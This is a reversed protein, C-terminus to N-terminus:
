FAWALKFAAGETDDGSAYAFETELRWWRLGVGASLLDSRNGTLDHCYGGRLELWPWVRWGGGFALEQASAEGAVSENEILDADLGLSWREDLYAAGLRYAPRLTFERGDDLRYTDRLLNRATFAIRYHEQLQTAVGLDVNGDFFVEGNEETDLEIVEDSFTFDQRLVLIRQGKPTIGFAVPHGFVPLEKALALGFEVIALAGIFASSTLNEKPDQLEGDVFLEPREEGESGGTAIFSMAQRYDDLVARDEPTINGSTVGVVRAGLILAGGQRKGPVTLSWGLHGDIEVPRDTLDAAVEDLRNVADLVGQASEAGPSANYADVSDTVQIDLEEDYFDLVSDLPGESQAVLSLSMRGDQGVDEDRDHFALLAPNYWAAQELGAQAVMAGGMALGRAEYLGFTQAQVPVGQLLLGLALPSVWVASSRASRHVVSENAKM